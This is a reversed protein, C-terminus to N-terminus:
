RLRVHCERGYEADAHKFIPGWLSRSMPARRSETVQDTLQGERSGRAPADTFLRTILRGERSDPDACRSNTMDADTRAQNVLADIAEPRTDDLDLYPLLAAPVQDRPFRLIECPRNLHKVLMRAINDYAFEQADISLAAAAGGFKWGALDRHVDTRRSRNVQRARVRALASSRSRSTSRPWRWRM